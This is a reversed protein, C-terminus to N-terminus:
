VAARHHDRPEAAEPEHSRKMTQTSRRRRKIPAPAAPKRSIPEEGRVSLTRGPRKRKGFRPSAGHGRESLAEDVVQAQAVIRASGDVGVHASDGAEGLVEAARGLQEAWVFYTGELEVKEFATHRPATEVLGDAGQAEEVAGGQAPGLLQREKGVAFPGLGQGADQAGVLHQPQEVRGRGSAVADQELDGVAAAQAQGFQQVQADAVDVAGAYDNVNTLALSGLVAATV